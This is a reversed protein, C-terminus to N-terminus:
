EYRLAEAPKLKTAKMIPYLSGVIGLLIALGLATIMLEPRLALGMREIFVGAPGGGSPEGGPSGTGGGLVLTTISPGAVLVVIVSVIFGFIALTVSELIFQGVVSSNKFGIAKLVGIERTRERTILIMIFTMVAVGTLLSLWLGTASSTAISNLSSQLQSAFASAPVIDYDSGLATKLSEVVYDVNGANDVNVYLMNMGSIQYVRKATQYPIIVANDGFRNGSSFLGVVQISTSNLTIYSYLGAGQDESYRAGVIAVNANVDGSNLTRGDTVSVTGGGFLLLPQSPDQGQVITMGRGQGPQGMQGEMHTIVPQVSTVHAIRQVAPLISEDMTTDMGQGFGGFSGAPRVTVETDSTSSIDRARNTIDANVTSMAMFVGLCFGIILIVPVSRVTKRFVNRVARSAVGM